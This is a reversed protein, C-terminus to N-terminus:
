NAPWSPTAPSRPASARLLHRPGPAHGAGAAGRPTWVPDPGDDFTLAITRPRCGTPSPVTASTANVIPGGTSWYPPSRGARQRRHEAPPGPVFSANAYAEVFLVGGLLALVTSLLDLEAAAGGPSAPVSGVLRRRRARLTPEAM